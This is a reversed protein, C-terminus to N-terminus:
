TNHWLLLGHHMLFRTSDNQHFIGNGGYQPFIVKSSLRSSMAPARLVWENTSQDQHVWECVVAVESRSTIRCGMIERDAESARILEGPVCRAGTFDPASSLVTVQRRELHAWSVPKALRHIHSYVASQNHRSQSKEYFYHNRLRGV